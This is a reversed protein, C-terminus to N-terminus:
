KSERFMKDYDFVTHASAIEDKSITFKLDLKDFMKRFTVKGEDTYEVLEAEFEKLAVDKLINTKKFLKIFVTEGVYKKWLKETKLIREFGPSSVELMYEVKMLNDIKDEIKRSINECDSTDMNSKDLKEVVIRLIYNDMEKVYETYELEFGLEKLDAEIVEEIKELIKNM